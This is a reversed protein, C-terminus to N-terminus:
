RRDAALDGRELGAARCRDLQPESLLLAIAQHQPDVAHRGPLRLRHHRARTLRLDPRDGVGHVPRVGEVQVAEEELLDVRHAHGEPRQRPLVGYADRDFSGRADQHLEVIPQPHPHEVAVDEIVGVGAHHPHQHEPAVSAPTASRLVVAPPRKLFLSPDLPVGDIEVQFHLHPGTARGSQGSLAIRAGKTVPDGKGVGLQSAHCYATTLGHGHDIKVFRGNISDEAAYLVTGAAVAQIATGTAAALDVGRHFRVTGLVPHVRDGFASTVRLDGSPLPSGMEYATALAFAGRLFPDARDRDSSVLYARFAAYELPRREGSVRARDIAYRVSPLDISLAAVAAEESGLRQSLRLLGAYLATEQAAPPDGPGPVPVGIAAFSRRAADPLRIALAGAREVKGEAAMVAVGRALSPRLGAPIPVGAFADPAMLRSPDVAIEGPKLDERASSFYAVLPQPRPPLGLLSRLGAQLLGGVPTTVTMTYLAASVAFLEIALVLRAWHRTLARRM